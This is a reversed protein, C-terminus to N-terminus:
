IWRAVKIAFAGLIILTAAVKAIATLPRKEVDRFWWTTFRRAYEIPVFIQAILSAFFLLFAWVSTLLTSPVVVANLNFQERPVAYLYDAIPNIELSTWRDFLWRANSVAIENYTGNLTLVILAFFYTLVYSVSLDISFFLLASLVAHRQSIIKIILSAKALSIWDLLYFVPVMSMAFQWHGLLDRGVYSWDPHRMALLILWFITTALVSRAIFKRSLPRSGFVREFIAPVLTAGVKGLDTLSSRTLLNAVSQLASDSADKELAEAGRVMGIALAVAGAPVGFASLIDNIEPMATGVGIQTM